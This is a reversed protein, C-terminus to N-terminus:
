GNGWGAGDGAPGTQSAVTCSPAKRGGLAEEIQQQEECGSGDPHGEQRQDGEKDAKAETRGDEEPLVTWAQQALGEPQDLEPRHGIFRVRRALEERIGHSEDRKSAPQAGSREVLKWLEKADEPPVHGQDPRAWQQGAVQDSVIRFLGASM